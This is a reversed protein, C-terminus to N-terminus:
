STVSNAVLDYMWHKVSDKLTFSILKMRVVEISIHLFHMMPCVEKFERLLLYVDELRMFEPLMQM